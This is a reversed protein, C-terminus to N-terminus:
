CAEAVFDEELIHIRIGVCRGVKLSCEEVVCIEHLISGIEFGCGRKQLLVVWVNAEDKAFDVAAIWFAFGAGLSLAAVDQTAQSGRDPQDVEMQVHHAKHTKEQQCITAELTDVVKFSM